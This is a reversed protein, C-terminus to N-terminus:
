LDLRARQILNKYAAFGLKYNKNVYYHAEILIRMECLLFFLRDRFDSLSANRILLMAISDVIAPEVLSHKAWARVQAIDRAIARDTSDESANLQDLVTKEFNDGDTICLKDITQKECSCSWWWDHKTQLSLLGCTFDHKHYSYGTKVKPARCSTDPEVVFGGCDEYSFLQTKNYTVASAGECAGGCMLAAQEPSLDQKGCSSSRNKVFLPLLKGLYASRIGDLDLSTISTGGVLDRHCAVPMMSATADTPTSPNCSNLAFACNGYHMVSAFDYDTSVEVPIVRFQSQAQPKINRWYILVYADRDPRQHEHVLGFAHGLEHQLIYELQWHNIYVFLDQGGRIMGLASCSVGAGGCREGSHTAIRVYNTQTTRPICRIPTEASWSQCAQLFLNRQTADVNPQFEYYVIGNPWTNPVVGSQIVVDGYYIVDGSYIRGESDRTGLADAEAVSLPGRKFAPPSGQSFCPFVVGVLLLFAVGIRQLRAFM